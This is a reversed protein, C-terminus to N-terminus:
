WSASSRLVRLTQAGARFDVIQIGIGSADAPLNLSYAGANQRHDLLVSLLRGQVDFIRVRVREPQTLRYKLAGSELRASEKAFPEIGRSISVNPTGITFTREDGTRWGSNPVEGFVWWLYTEGYRLPGVRIVTDKGTATDRCYGGSECPVTLDLLNLAYSEAVSSPHWSFTVWLSDQNMKDPPSIMALANPLEQKKTLTRILSWASPGSPSESRVRWYYRIGDQLPSTIPVSTGSYEEQDMKLKSFESDEAVQMSYSSAGDVVTWYFAPMNAVSAGDEPKLLQPPAPIANATGVKLAPLGTQAVASPCSATLMNGLLVTLLWQSGSLTKM